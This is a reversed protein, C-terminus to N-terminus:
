GDQRGMLAACEDFGDAVGNEHGRPYGELYGRAYSDVSARECASGSAGVAIRLTEAESRSAELKSDLSETLAMLNGIEVEVPGTRAAERLRGLFDLLARAECTRAM